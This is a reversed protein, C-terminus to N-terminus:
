KGDTPGAPPHTRFEWVRFHKADWLGFTIPRCSLGITISKPHDDIFYTGRSYNRPQSHNVM